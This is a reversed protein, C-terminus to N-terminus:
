PLLNLKAALERTKRASLVVGRRGRVASLIWFELTDPLPRGDIWSTGIISKVKTLKFRRWPHNLPQKAPRPTAGNHSVAKAM